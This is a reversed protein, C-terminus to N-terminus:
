FRNLSIEKRDIYKTCEFLPMGLALGAYITGNIGLLEELKGKKQRVARLVFGTYFQSVGLSEAMLSANQYALNCDDRSYLLEKPAHIFILSTAGRLIGDKGKERYDRRTKKFMPIYNYVNPMFRKLFPRFFFNDVRKVTAEFTNLTFETVLKLKEPDTILTFGVKQANSATPARHGAELILKWFEEPVSKKSFARNSRRKRILLLTQEPTPLKSFDIDHVKEPPFLEHAIACAECAAVCHGCRICRHPGKIEVSKEQSVTFIGAPCINVCHFCRTCKSSHITIM